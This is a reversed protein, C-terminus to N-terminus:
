TEFETCGQIAAGHEVLDALKSPVPELGLAIAMRELRMGIEQLHRGFDFTAHMRAPSQGMGAHGLFADVVQEACGDSILWSRVYARMFNAAAPLGHGAIHRAIWRPDITSATQRVRDDAWDIFAQQALTGPPVSVAVPRWRWASKTHAAINNFQLLLRQPIPLARARAEYQDDKEVLSLVFGAACPPVRHALVEALLREPQRTPRVATLLGQMLLTYLLFSQHYRHWGSRTPAPLQTLESRLDVVFRQLEASRVVLRAGVAADPAPPSLGLPPTFALGAETYMRRIAKFYAKVLADTRHQTYHLRAQGEYRHDACLLAVGVEDLGARALLSPLKRSVKTTTLRPRSRVDLRQNVEALLCKVQARLREAPQHFVPGGSEGDIARQHMLLVAGLGTLDPLVLHRQAVEANRSFSEPPQSKYRPRIAPVAIGVCGSDGAGVLVVRTELIDPGKPRAEFESTLTTRTTLADHESCGFALMCMLLLRAEHDLACPIRAPCDAMAANLTEVNLAELLAAVEFPTLQTRDWYNRQLAAETSQRMTWLGHIGGPRSEIPFLDLVPHLDDGPAVDMTEIEVSAQPTLADVHIYVRTADHSPVDEDGTDPEPPEFFVFPSAPFHIFGPVPTSGGGTGRGGQRRRSTPRGEFYRKFDEFYGTLAVIRQRPPGDDSREVIQDKQEALADAFADLRPEYPLSELLTDWESYSFQRLALGVAAAPRPWAPWESARDYRLYQELTSRGHRAQAQSCFLHWQLLRFMRGAAALSSTPLSPDSDTHHRIWLAGASAHRNIGHRMMVHHHEHRPERVFEDLASSTKGSQKAAWAAAGLWAPLDDIWTDAWDQLGDVFEQTSLLSQLNQLCRQHGLLRPHANLLWFLRSLANRDVGEQEAALLVKGFTASQAPAITDKRDLTEVAAGGAEGHPIM